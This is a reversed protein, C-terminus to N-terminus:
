NKRGSRRLSERKRVGGGRAARNTHKSALAPSFIAVSGSGAFGVALEAQQSLKLFGKVEARRVLEECVKGSECAIAELRM